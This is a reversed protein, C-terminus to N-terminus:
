LWSRGTNVNNWGRNYDSSLLGGILPIQTRSNAIRIRNCCKNYEDDIRSYLEANGNMTLRRALATVFLDSYSAPIQLTDNIGVKPLEKNYILELQYGVSPKVDFYITMFPYGGDVAFATPCGSSDTSAMRLRLDTIDLQYVPYPANNASSRALLQNIYAPRDYDIDAINLPNDNDKGITFSSKLSQIIYQVIVRSFPLLQDENLQSIINNLDIVAMEAWNGDPEESFERSTIQAMQHAQSVISRVEIGM